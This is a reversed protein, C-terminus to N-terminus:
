VTTAVYIFVVYDRHQVVKYEKTFGHSNVHGKRDDFTESLNNFHHFFQSHGYNWDTHDLEKVYVM